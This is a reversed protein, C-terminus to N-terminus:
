DRFLAVFVQRWMEPLPRPALPLQDPSSQRVLSHASPLQWMAIWAVAHKKGAAIRAICVNLFSGVVTGLIFVVVLWYYVMM